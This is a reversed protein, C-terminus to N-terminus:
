FKENWLKKIILVANGFFNKIKVVVLCYLPIDLSFGRRFSSVAKLNNYFADFTDTEEESTRVLTQGLTVLLFEGLVFFVM